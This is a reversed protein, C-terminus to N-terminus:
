KNEGYLKALLKFDKRDILAQKYAQDFEILRKRGIVHAIFMPILQLVVVLVKNKEFDIFYSGIITLGLVVLGTLAYIRAMDKHAFAWHDDSRLSMANRLGYFINASSGAQIYFGLARIFYYMAVFYFIM